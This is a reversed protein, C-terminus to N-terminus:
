LLNMDHTSLVYVLAHQSLTLATETIYTITYKTTHVGKPAKGM